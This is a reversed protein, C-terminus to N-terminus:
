NPKASLGEVKEPTHTTPKRPRYKRARVFPVSYDGSPDVVKSEVDIDTPSIFILTDAVPRVSIHIERELRAHDQYQSFPLKDTLKKRISEVFQDVVEKRSYSM